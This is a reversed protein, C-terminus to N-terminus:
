VPILGSNSVNQAVNPLPISSGVTADYYRSIQQAMDGIAGAVDKLQTFLVILAVTVLVVFLATAITQGYKKWFGEKKFVSEIYKHLNVRALRVDSDVFFVEAKNMKDLVSEMSIATYERDPRLYFWYERRAMPINSPLIYRKSKKIYWIEEGSRTVKFSRMPSEYLKVTRGNIEGFVVAKKNYLRRYYIFLFVGIIASALILIAFLIVFINAISGMSINGLGFNASNFFDVM